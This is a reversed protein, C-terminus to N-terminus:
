VIVAVGGRRPDGAAELGSDMDLHVMHAGGFYLNPEAWLRHDPFASQLKAKAEEGGTDEFDLHGREVHVRSAAVAEEVSQGERFLRCLVQFVASRIRNSGGSGLATVSRTGNSAITPAMMSAMRTDEQWAHLGDPSLDEEGLMNNVMFGCGPVLHGNGEGNSVTVAAANGQADVVSIHTTGRSATRHRALQQDEVFAGINCKAARWKADTAAIARAYAVIGPQQTEDDRLRAIMDGVLTGGCSPPPNLLLTHGALEAQLPARDEVRYRTFDDMGLCGAEVSDLMARAIEGETAIRVGERGIAEIAGGLNHNHFMSGAKPLAGDRAFLARVPDSWQYIPAVVDLLFAQFPTIEFGGKAIEVAQETLRTMPLRGLQAHVAFLGPVFGPTASAGAGIHFEQTATGFDALVSALEIEDGPRHRGPTQVFFDFLRATTDADRAMLFGGGGISSLVPEVVCSTWLGAIAADFVNGGERLINAATEATLRHGAAVAGKFPRRSTV